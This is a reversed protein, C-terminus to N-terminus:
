MSKQWLCPSLTILSRIVLHLQTCLTLNEAFNESHTKGRDGQVAEHDGDEETEVHHRVLSAGASLLLDLEVRALGNLSVM